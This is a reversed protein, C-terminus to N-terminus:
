TTEGPRKTPWERAQRSADDRVSGARLLGLVERFAEPPPPCGPVEVDVPLIRSLGSVAAYGAYPGGSIACGGWAVVWRPALMREYLSQLLPAQRETLSGAVLLLDAARASVAPPGGGLAEFADGPDTAATM